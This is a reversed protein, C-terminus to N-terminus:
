KQIIMRQQTTRVGGESYLELRIFYMGPALTVLDLETEYRGASQAANVPMDLIRGTLDTMVLRVDGSAPIVYSIHTYNQAPNPYNRLELENGFSSSTWVPTQLRVMSYIEASMDTFESQGIIEFPVGTSGFGLTKIRLTMLLEEAKVSLAKQPAFWAIRVMQGHQKFIPQFGYGHLQVAELVDGPKLELELQMSGLDIAEEVYIPVNVVGFAPKGTRTGQSLLVRPLIRANPNYSANVDGVCLARVNQLVNQGALLVTDQSYIWDGAAFSNILSISRQMTLLADNSNVAGDNNVDAALIKLGTLVNPNTFYENILLADGASVGGWPRTTAGRLIYRADNLNQFVYNASADVTTNSILAGLSDNLAVSGVGIPTFQLNDYVLKGQINKGLLNPDVTVLVSDTAGCGNSGTVTLYYMTTATPSAVPSLISTSSLGTAPSWSITYPQLGGTATASLNVSAGPAISVSIGADITPTPNVIVAVTGTVVCGENTTATVTYITTIVPNATPNAINSNSLGTAPSWSYTVGSGVYGAISAQLQTSGGRCITQNTSVNVRPVFVIITDRNTCGNSDTGTVIYQTTTTPNATPNAINTASLGASPSWSYSVGGTVTLQVANGNCAVLNPGANITPRPNVTVVVTDLSVCGSATLGAVVYVTTQQPSAIPNAINNASLGASPSWLYQTAGSAQLQISGGPCISVDAGASMNPDSFINVTVTDMISCGAGNSIQVTYSTTVVPSVTISATTAGTSWLYSTGGSALLTTSGGICITQDVSVSGNPVPLVTISRSATSSCGFSDTFSYTILHTGVGAM